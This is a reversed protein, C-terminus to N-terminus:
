VLFFELVWVLGRQCVAVRIDGFGAEFYFPSSVSESDTVVNAADVAVFRRTVGLSSWALNVELYPCLPHLGSFFRAITIRTLFPSSLFNYREGIGALLAAINLSFQVGLFRAFIM